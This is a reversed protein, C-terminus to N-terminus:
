PNEGRSSKAHSGQEARAILIIEQAIDEPSLVLDICGSALASEPMDPEDATSPKHTITTGSIDKSNCMAAAVEWDLGGAWGGICVIPFSTM